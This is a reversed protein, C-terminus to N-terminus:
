GYLPGGDIGVENSLEGSAMLIDQASLETVEFTPSIYRQKM